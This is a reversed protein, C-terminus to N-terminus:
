PEAKLLKTLASQMKLVKIDTASHQALRKLAISAAAYRMGGAAEGLERLTCGCRRWRREGAYRGGGALARIRRGYEQTIAKAQRRNVM